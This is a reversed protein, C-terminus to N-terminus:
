APPKLTAAHTRAAEPCTFVLSRDCYRLTSGQPTLYAADNGWEPPVSVSVPEYCASRAGLSVLRGSLVEWGGRDKGDPMVQPRYFVVYAADGVDPAPPAEAVAPAPATLGAERVEQLAVLMEVSEAVSLERHPVM